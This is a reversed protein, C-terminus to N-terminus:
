NEPSIDKNTKENDKNDEENKNVEDENKNNENESKNNDHKNLKWLITTNLVPFITRRNISLEVCYGKNILAQETPTSLKIGNFSVENKGDKMANMILDYIFKEENKTDECFSIPLESISM